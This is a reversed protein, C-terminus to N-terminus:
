GLEAVSDSTAIRAIKGLTAITAQHEEETSAACLDELVVVTYDRDHADRATTQVALDTTVGGLLVTDIGRARLIAELPTGYLASVRPKRVIMDDEQRQLAPHIETAWNDLPLAAYQKAMGFLPSSEPCDRHGASFGVRVFIVEIGKKRAKAIAANAKALLGKKQVQQPYGAGAFKGKEDIIENILDILILAAKAM